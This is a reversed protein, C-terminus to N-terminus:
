SVDGNNGVNVVAFGGEDILQQLLGAGEGGM